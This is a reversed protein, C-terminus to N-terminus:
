VAPVAGHLHGDELVHGRHGETVGLGRLLDMLLYPAPPRPAAGAGVPPLRGRAGTQASLLPKTRAGARAPPPAPGGGSYGTREWFPAGPSTAAPVTSATHLPVGGAWRPCLVGQEQAVCSKPRTDESRLLGGVPLAHLQNRKSTVGVSGKPVAEAGLRQPCLPSRGQGDPGPPTQRAPLPPKLASTPAGSSGGQAPGRSFPSGPALRERVHTGDLWHRRRSAKSKPQLGGTARSGPPQCFGPPRTWLFFGWAPGGTTQPFLRRTCRGDSASSLWAAPSLVSRFGASVASSPVWPLRHPPQQCLRPRLFCTLGEPPVPLLFPCCVRPPNSFIQFLVTALSLQGARAGARRSDTPPLPTWLRSGPCLCPQPSPGRRPVLGQRFARPGPAHSPGPAFGTLQLSVHASALPLSPQYTLPSRCRAHQSRQGPARLARAVRPWSKRM